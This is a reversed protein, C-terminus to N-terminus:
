GDIEAVMVHDIQQGSGERGQRRKAAKGQEILLCRPFVFACVLTVIALGSVAVWGISRLGLSSTLLLGAFGVISTLNSVFIAPMKEGLAVRIEGSEDFRQMFHILSDIGTGLIVPFAVVNMVNLHLSTLRLFGALLALCAVLNAMVICTRQVSRHTWFIVIALFVFILGLGKPSEDEILRLIDDSAFAADVAKFSLGTLEKLSGVGEHYRRLAASSTRPFDPYLYTAYLDKDRDSVFFRRAEVPLNELTAAPSQISDRLGAVLDEKKNEPLWRLKRIKASMRSLVAKKEATERPFFSSLGVVNNYVLPQGNKLLAELRNVTEEANELGTDLLVTPNLSANAARSVRDYLRHGPLKKNEMLGEEYTIRLERSFTAAAVGCLLSVALVGAVPAKTFFGLHRFPTRPSVALLVGGRERRREIFALLSPILLVMALYNVAIGVAGAIGFEYFVGFDSFILAAFAGVTTVASAFTAQGTCGFARRCATSFDSGERRETYYRNLLYIAYDSGLGALIAAAFSTLINLHGLIAAILGGTCLEAIVLPIGVLFVAEFSRFYLFIILILIITVAASVLLMEQRLRDNEELMTKLPGTYGVQISRYEDRQKLERESNSLDAIFKRVKGIDGSDGKVKVRLALFRGEEGSVSFGATRWPKRSYKGWIDRFHLDPRDEEGAFDMLGAFLLSVGREELRIARDIRREMEELDELDLYLWQRKKFYDVPRRYDVSLVAPHQEIKGALEDAFQGALTSDDSEVTVILYRSGGFKEKFENLARVSETGEPLLTTLDTELKLKRLGFLSLVALFLFGFLVSKRFRLGVRYLRPSRRTDM